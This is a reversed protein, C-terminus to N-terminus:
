GDLVPTRSPMRALQRVLQDATGRQRHRSGIVLAVLGLVLLSVTLTTVLTIARRDSSRWRRRGRAMARGTSRPLPTLHDGIADAKMPDPEGDPM